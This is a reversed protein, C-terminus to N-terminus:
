VNGLFVTKRCNERDYKRMLAIRKAFSKISRIGQWCPSRRLETEYAWIDMDSGDWDTRGDPYLMRIRRLEGNIKSYAGWVQPTRNHPKPDKRKPM